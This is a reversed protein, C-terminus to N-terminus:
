TTEDPHLLPQPELGSEPPPHEPELGGEPLSTRSNPSRKPHPFWPSSIRSQITCASSILISFNWIMVTVNTNAMLMVTIPSIIIMKIFKIKNQDIDIDFKIVIILIIIM